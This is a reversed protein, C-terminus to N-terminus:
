DILPNGFSGPRGSYRGPVGLMYWVSITAATANGVSVSYSTFGNSVDLANSFIPIAYMGNKNATADTTFTNSVAIIPAGFNVSVSDDISSFYQTFPILKSGTGAVATAQLLGIASGVVGSAGNKFAILATVGGYYKLSVWRTTAAAPVVPQLAVVPVWQDPFRTGGTM